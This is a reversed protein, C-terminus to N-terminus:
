LLTTKTVKFNFITSLFAMICLSAECSFDKIGFQQQYDFKSCFLCHIVSLDLSGFDIQM